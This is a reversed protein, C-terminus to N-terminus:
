IEVNDALECNADISAFVATLLAIQDNTAKIKLQREREAAEAPRQAEVM